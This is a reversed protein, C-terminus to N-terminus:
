TTTKAGDFPSSNRTSRPSSERARTLRAREADGIERDPHWAYCFIWCSEDDVPVWTNALATSEPLNGPALSHNPLLYQTMRWYLQDDDANARRM